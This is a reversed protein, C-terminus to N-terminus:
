PLATIIMTAPEGASEQIWASQRTGNTVCFAGKYTHSGASIGILPIMYTVWLFDTLTASTVEM